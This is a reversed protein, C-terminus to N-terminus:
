NVNELRLWSKLCRLWYIKPVKKLSYITQSRLSDFGPRSPPFRTRWRSHWAAGRLYIDKALRTTSLWSQPTPASSWWTSTTRGSAASWRSADTRTSALATGPDEASWPNDTLARPGSPGMFGSPFTRLQSTKTAASSFFFCNKQLRHFFSDPIVIKATDLQQLVTTSSQGPLGSAATIFRALQQGKETLTPISQSISGVEKRKGVM